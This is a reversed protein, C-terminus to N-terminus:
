ERANSTKHDKLFSEASTVIEVLSTVVRNHGKSEFVLILRLLELIIDQLEKSNFYTEFEAQIRQQNTFSLYYQKLEPFGMNNDMPDIEILDFVLQVIPHKENPKSM